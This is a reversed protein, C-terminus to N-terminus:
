VRRAGCIMLTAMAAGVLLISMACAPSSPVAIRMSATRTEAPYHLPSAEVTLRVTRGAADAPISVRVPITASEGPALKRTINGEPYGIKWGNETWAWIKFAAAMSGTNTVTAIYTNAKGAEPIQKETSLAITFNLTREISLNLKVSSYMGAQHFATVLLSFNGQPANPPVALELCVEVAPPHLEVPGTGRLVSVNAPLGSVSLMVKGSLRELSHLVLSFEASEESSVLASSNQASLLIDPKYLGVLCLEGGSIVLAEAGNHFPDLEGVRAVDCFGEPAWVTESRWDAGSWWVVSVGNGGTVVVEAGESGTLLDGIAVGGLPSGTRWLIMGGWTGGVLELLVLEGGETSVLLECGAHRPDADGHALGTVASPSTWLTLNRWGKGDNYVELLQGASTGIVLEDGARMSDIDAAIISCAGAVTHIRRSMATDEGLDVLSIEGGSDVAAVGWGRGEQCLRGASVALVPASCIQLLRASVQRGLASILYIAGSAQATAVGVALEFGDSGADLEGTAISTISGDAKWPTETRWACGEMWVLRLSGSDGGTVGEDGPVSPIFDAVALTTLNGEGELVTEHHWISVAGERGSAAGCLRNMNSAPSLILLALLLLALAFAIRSGARIGPGNHEERVTM